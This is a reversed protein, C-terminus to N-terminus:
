IHGAPETAESRKGTRALWRERIEAVGYAAMVFLMPELPLRFRSTGAFILIGTFYLVSGFVLILPIGARRRIMGLLGVLGLLRMVVVYAMGVFTMILVTPSAARFYDGYRNWGLLSLVNREALGFLSSFNSVGPSGYMLAWSPLLGCIYDRVSYTLMQNKADKILIQTQENDPLSDFGPIAKLRQQRAENLRRTAQDNSLRTRCHELYVLQIRLFWFKHGETTLQFGQGVHYNYTLWPVVIACALAAAGLGMVLGRKWAAAGQGLMALVMMVLPLFPVLAQMPNRALLSIGIATGVALASGWTTTQGFAVMAWFTLSVVFAYVTDSQVLHATGLASPNLVVLALVITGYGPILRETIARGVLGTAFLLGLQLIIYGWIAGGTLWLTSAILVPILPPRLTLYNAPADPDVFAGYKLLGLAPRYWSAVDAAFELNAGEVTLNAIIANVAMFAILTLLIGRWRNEPQL